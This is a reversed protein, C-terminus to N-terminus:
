CPMSAYILSPQRTKVVPVLTFINNGFGRGSRGCCWDYVDVGGNDRIACGGCSWWLWYELKNIGARDSVVIRLGFRQGFRLGVDIALVYIPIVAYTSCVAM